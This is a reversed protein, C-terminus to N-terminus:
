EDGWIVVGIGEKRVCMCVDMWVLFGRGRACTRRPWRATRVSPKPDRPSSAPPKAPRPALPKSLPPTPHIFPLPHRNRSLFSPPPPSLPESSSYPITLHPLTLYPSPSSLRPATSPSPTTQGTRTYQLTNTQKPLKPPLHPNAIMPPPPFM